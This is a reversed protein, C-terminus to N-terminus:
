VAAGVGGGAVCMVALVVGSFNVLVSRICLLLHLQENVGHM